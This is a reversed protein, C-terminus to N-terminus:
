KIMLSTGCCIQVLCITIKSLCSSLRCTDDGDEHSMVPTCSSQSLRNSTTILTLTVSVSAIQIVALTVYSWLHATEDCRGSTVRSQNLDHWILLWFQRKRKKKKLNNSSLVCHLHETKHKYIIKELIIRAHKVGDTWLETMRKHCLCFSLRKCRWM